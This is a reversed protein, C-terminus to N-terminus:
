DEYSSEDTGSRRINWAEGLLDVCVHLVQATGLLGDIILLKRHEDVHTNQARTGFVPFAGFVLPTGLWKVNRVLEESARFLGNYVRM